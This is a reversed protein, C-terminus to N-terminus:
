SAIYTNFNVRNVDTSNSKAYWEVDTTRKKVFWETTSLM